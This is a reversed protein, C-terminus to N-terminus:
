SIDYEYTVADDPIHQLHTASTAVGYLNYKSSIEKVYDWADLRSHVTRKDEARVPISQVWVHTKKNKSESVSLMAGYYLGVSQRAFWCHEKNRAGRKFRAAALLRKQESDSDDDDFKGKAPFHPIYHLVANEHDMKSYADGVAYVHECAQISLWNITKEDEKQNGSLVALDRVVIEAVFEACARHWLPNGRHDRANPLRCIFCATHTYTFRPTTNKLPILSQIHAVPEQPYKKTKNKAAKAVDYIKEVLSQVMWKRRPVSEGALLNTGLMILSVIGIRQVFKM